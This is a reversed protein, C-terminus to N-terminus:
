FFKVVLLGVLRGILVLLCVYTDLYEGGLYHHKTWITQVICVAIWWDVLKGSSIM